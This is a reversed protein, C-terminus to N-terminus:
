PGGLQHLLTSCRAGADGELRPCAGSLLDRAMTLDGDAALRSALWHVDAPDADPSEALAVAEKMRGKDVHLRLGLGVVARALLPNEAPPRAVLDRVLRWAADPREAEQELLALNFRTVAPIGDM